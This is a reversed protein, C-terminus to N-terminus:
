LFLRILQANTAPIGTIPCRGNEQLYKHICSYCFVFGCTVLVTDNRRPKHCLPCARLIGDRPYCLEEPVIKFACVINQQWISISKLSFFIYLHPLFMVNIWFHFYNRMM